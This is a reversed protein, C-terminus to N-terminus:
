VKVDCSFCDWSNPFLCFLQSPFLLDPFYWDLTMGLRNSADEGRSSPTSYLRQLTPAHMKMIQRGQLLGHVITDQHHSGESNHYSMCLHQHNFTCAGYLLLTAHALKKIFERGIVVVCKRHYIVCKRTHLFEHYVLWPTYFSMACWGHHTSVAHCVLWPTYFNCPVGAM